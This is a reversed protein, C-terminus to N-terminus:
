SSVRYTLSRTAGIADAVVVIATGVSESKSINLTTTALGSGNTTLTAQGIKTDAALVGTRKQEANVLETESRDINVEVLVGVQPEGLADTVTVTLPVKRNDALGMSLRVINAPQGNNAPAAVLLGKITSTTSSQSSVTPSAVRIRPRIGASTGADATSTQTDIHLRLEFEIRPIQYTVPNESESTQALSSLQDQASAVGQALSILFDDLADGHAISPDDPM